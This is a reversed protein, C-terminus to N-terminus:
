KAHAYAEAPVVAEAGGPPKWLLRLASTGKRQFYEIAIPYWGAQPVALEVPPSMTDGHVGGDEHLQVGGILLRVGDNSLIKFIYTGAELKIFGSIQAGVGMAQNATLVNGSDSKHDLKAIPEGPKGKGLRAVDKVNEFMMYTYAVALGPKLKDAAPQPAVPKATGIPNALAATGAFLAAAILALLTGNRM